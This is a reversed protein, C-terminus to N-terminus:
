EEDTPTSNHEFNHHGQLTITIADTMFKVLNKNDKVECELVLDTANIMAVLGAVLAKQLKQTRSDNTRSTSYPINPEM